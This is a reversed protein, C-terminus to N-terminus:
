SYASAATPNNTSNTIHKASYAIRNPILINPPDSVLSPLPPATAEKYLYNYAYVESRNAFVQLFKSTLSSPWSEVALPRRKARPLLGVADIKEGPGLTAFADLIAKIYTAMQEAGPFVYEGVAILTGASDVFPTDITIFYPGTGGFSVIKGTRLIWDVSSLWCVTGGIVPAIDSNVQFNTSTVVDLVDVFGLTAYVPFPNADLWGGGPGAPVATKASPLSLGFSVNVPFNQVTTVVCEAYEPVAGIGAPAVKTSMITANVARGKNTATPAGVAALHVTSPGNCAPYCFAKQVATTSNETALNLAAWNTGNPPHRLRDLLRGRLGEESEQDIGGTLGGAGVVATPQVFEPPATWRLVAGADLNTGLGTDVSEVTLEAGNDFSGGVLVQYTLGNADILQAGSPIGVKPLVIL